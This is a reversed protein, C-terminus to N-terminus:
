DDEDEEVIALTMCRCNIVEGAPATMDGPYALKSFTGSKSGSVYRFKDGVNAISGDLSRHDAKGSPSTPRVEEDQATLWRHRKVGQKKMENQRGRSISSGSETRAITTARTSAMKYIEKVREALEHVTEGKSIGSTLTKRLGEKVTNVIAPPIKTLRAEIYGLVDNNLPEFAFTGAGIEEFIMEAGTELSVTYLPQFYKSLKAIEEQSNLLDDATGRVVIDHIGKSFNEYLRKLVANKQEFFFREVKKKFKKEIPIQKSLYNKWVLDEVAKTLLVHDDKGAAVKLKAGKANYIDMTRELLKTEEMSTKVLDEIAGFGFDDVSKKGDEKDEKKKDDSKKGKEDKEDGNGDKGDDPPIYGEASGVPVKSNSMWAVDGWPVSEFGLQLRENVANLTFGMEIFEKAVEVKESLDEQLAGVTGLDFECWVRGGEITLLMKNITAQVYTIKPVLTEEWFAKHATKIGEFSKIDSYGGLVVDNTGYAAFIEKKTVEKSKVFDMDKQSMKNEKFDTDGELIGIRHAKQAGKHRDDFQERLRRYQVDNLQNKSVIFGSTIAGEKFFAENYQSAYYDQNISAQAADLPAMGRIDDDPNFYKFQVIENMGFYVESTGRYKWGLLINTKKEYVPDFRLPHFSWIETPLKAINNDNELIWFAEGRIGLYSMTSEILQTGSNYINPNKFLDVIPGETVEIKGDKSGEDKRYFKLPVRSINTAIKSVSAFVWVSQRYPQTVKTNYGLMQRLSQYILSDGVMPGPPSVSKEVEYGASGERTFGAASAIRDVISM